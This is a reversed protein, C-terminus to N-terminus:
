GVELDWRSFEHWTLSRVGSMQLNPKQKPCMQQSSLFPLRFASFVSKLLFDTTFFVSHSSM